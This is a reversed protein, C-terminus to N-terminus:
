SKFKVGATKKKKKKKVAKRKTGQCCDVLSGTLEFSEWGGRWNKKQLLRLFIKVNKIQKPNHDQFSIIEM